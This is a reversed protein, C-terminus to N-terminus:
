LKKNFRNSNINEDDVREKYFIVRFVTLIAYILAKCFYSM